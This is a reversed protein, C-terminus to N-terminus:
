MFLNDIVDPVLSVAFLAFYIIMLRIFVDLYTNLLQKYWKNFMGDKQSPIIRMMVPIPSIIQLVGLKAVRVGIEMAYCLFMWVALAGALVAFLWDFELNGKSSDSVINRLFADNVFPAINGTYRSAAVDYFYNVCVSQDTADPILSTDGQLYDECQEFTFNVPRYFAQMLIPAISYAGKVSDSLGKYNVCANSLQTTLDKNTNSNKSWFFLVTGRETYKDLGYSTFNCHCDYDDTDCGTTGATGTDGVLIIKGIINSDLINNQFTTMYRFITPLLIVLVLSIITEKVLKTAAGTSKKDDPNIIMLIINYAFIFLMAIGVIVYIRSTFENFIDESFLSAKAVADFVQYLIGILRYLLSSIVLFLGNITEWLWTWSGLSFLNM